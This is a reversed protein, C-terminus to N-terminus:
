WILECACGLAKSVFVKLSFPTELPLFVVQLDDDSLNVAEGGNRKM